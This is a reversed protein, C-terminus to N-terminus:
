VKTIFYVPQLLFDLAGFHYLIVVLVLKFVGTLWSESLMLLLLDQYKGDMAATLIRERFNPTVGFGLMTMIPLVLLSLVCHFIVYYVVLLPIGIYIYYLSRLAFGTTSTSNREALLASLFGGKAM